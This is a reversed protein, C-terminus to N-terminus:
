PVKEVPIDPLDEGILQIDKYLEKLRIRISDRKVAFRAENVKKELDIIEVRGQIDVIYAKFRQIDSQLSDIKVQSSNLLKISSDIKKEAEELRKVANNINRGSFLFSNIILILIGGGMLYLIIREKPTM